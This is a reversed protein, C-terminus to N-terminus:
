FSSQRMCLALPGLIALLLIISTLILWIEGYTYLSQGLALIQSSYIFVSDAWNDTFIMHVNEVSSMDFGLLIGNIQTVLGLTFEGAATSIAPIVSITEFLFCTGVILGLPLGATYERGVSVVESLQVNLMILVFLFLVAVAGVYVILYSLGIFGIGLIILYGGAFVFVTILYLVAVVPSRATIVLVSCIVSLFALSDIFITTM